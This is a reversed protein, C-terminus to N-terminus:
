VFLKGERHKKETAEPSELYESLLAMLRHRSEIAFSQCGVHVMYGHDTEQISIGRAKPRTTADEIQRPADPAQVLGSTTFTPNFM